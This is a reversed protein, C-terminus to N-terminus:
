TCVAAATAEVRGKDRLRRVGGPVFDRFVQLIPSM